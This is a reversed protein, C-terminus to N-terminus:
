SNKLKRSVCDAISNITSFRYDNIDEASFRIKYYVMLEVAIYCMDIPSFGAKQSMLNMDRNAPDKITENNRVMYAIDTVKNIIEELYKM